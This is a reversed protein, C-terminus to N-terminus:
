ASSIAVGVATSKVTRKRFDVAVEFDYVEIFSFCTGIFFMNNNYNLYKTIWKGFLEEFGFWLWLFGSCVWQWVVLIFIFLGCVVVWIDHGVFHYNIKRILRKELHILFRILRNFSCYIVTFENFCSSLCFFFQSYFQICESGFYYNIRLTWVRYMSM